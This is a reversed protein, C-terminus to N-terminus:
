RQAAPTASIRCAIPADEDFYCIACIRHYGDAIVLPIGRSMEGRVLLVPSLPKKKRIKRLDDEVHSEDRPLLALNSARLLDKATASHTPGRRLTRLLRKAEASTYLLCLFSLAGQLDADTPENRWLRGLKKVKSMVYVKGKV